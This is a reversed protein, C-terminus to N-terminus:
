QGKAACHGVKPYFQKVLLKLYTGIRKKEHEQTKM